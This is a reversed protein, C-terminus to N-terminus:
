YRVLGWIITCYLYDVYRLICWAGAERDTETEPHLHICFVTIFLQRCLALCYM